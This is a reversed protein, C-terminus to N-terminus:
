WRWTVAEAQFWLRM